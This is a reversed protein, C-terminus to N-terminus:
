QAGGRREKLLLDIAEKQALLVDLNDVFTMHAITDQLEAGLEELEQDDFSSLSQFYEQVLNNM